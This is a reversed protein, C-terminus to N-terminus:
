IKGLFKITLSCIALHCCLLMGTGRPHSGAQHDSPSLRYVCYEIVFCQHKGRPLGLSVAGPQLEHLRSAALGVLGAIFATAM